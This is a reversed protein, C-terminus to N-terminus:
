TTRHHIPKPEFGQARREYEDALELHARRAAADTSAEAIERERKARKAFYALDQQDFMDAGTVLASIQNWLVAFAANVQTFRAIM